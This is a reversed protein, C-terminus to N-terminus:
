FVYTRVRLYVHFLFGEKINDNNRTSRLSVVSRAEVLLGRVLTYMKLLM